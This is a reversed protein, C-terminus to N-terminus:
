KSFIRWKLGANFDGFRDYEGVIFWRPTLKYEVHYTPRGQESIEEGSRITLREQTQDSLGLKALLDRGLFLAM